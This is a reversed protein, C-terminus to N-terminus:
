EEFPPISWGRYLIVEGTRYERVWGELLKQDVQPLDASPMDDIVIVGHPHIRMIAEIEGPLPDGNNASHGGCPHADLWYLLPEHKDFNPLIRNLFEVSDGFSLHVNKAHALRGCAEEFYRPSLEVGYIYKFDQWVAAPTSGQCTGTEILTRIGLTQGLWRLLDQKWM